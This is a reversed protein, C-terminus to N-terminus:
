DLEFPARRPDIGLVVQAAEVITWQSVRLGLVPGARFVELAGVMHVLHGLVAVIHAPITKPAHKPKANDLLRFWTEIEWRSLYERLLRAPDGGDECVVVCSAQAELAWAPRGTAADICRASRAVLVVWALTGDKQFRVRVVRMWDLVLKGTVYDLSTRHKSTPHQITAELLKYLNTKKGDVEVANSLNPHATFRVRYWWGAERLLRRVEVGQYARDLLTVSPRIGAARLAQIMRKVHWSTSGAGFQLECLYPCTYKVGRSRWVLVGVFWPNCWPPKNKASSRAKVVRRSLHPRVRRSTKRPRHAKEPYYPVQNGDGINAVYGREPPHARLMERSKQRLSTNVAKHWRRWDMDAVIKSFQSPWLKSKTRIISARRPNKGEVLSYLLFAAAREPWKAGAIRFAAEFIKRIARQNM